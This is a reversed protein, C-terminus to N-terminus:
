ASSENRTAILCGLYQELQLGLMMGSFICYSAKLVKAQAFGARHVRSTM